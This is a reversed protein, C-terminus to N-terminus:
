PLAGDMIWRHLTRKHQPWYRMSDLVKLRDLLEKTALWMLRAVEM